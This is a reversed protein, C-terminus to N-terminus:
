EYPILWVIHSRNVWVEELDDVRPSNELYSFQVWDGATEVVRVQSVDPSDTLRVQYSSGVLMPSSPRTACGAVFFVCASILLYRM